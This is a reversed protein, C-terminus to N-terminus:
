FADGPLLSRYGKLHALEGQDLEDDSGHIDFDLVVYQEKVISSNRAPLVKESRVDRFTQPGTIFVLPAACGQPAARHAPSRSMVYRFLAPKRAAVIFM